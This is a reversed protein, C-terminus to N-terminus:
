LEVKELNSIHAEYEVPYDRNKLLCNGKDDVKLLVMIVSHKNKKFKYYTTKGM